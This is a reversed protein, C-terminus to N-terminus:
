RSLCLIELSCLGLSQLDSSNCAVDFVQLALENLLQAEWGDLTVGDILINVKQTLVRKM